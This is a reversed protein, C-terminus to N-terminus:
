ICHYFIRKEQLVWIIDNDSICMACQKKALNVMKVSELKSCEMDKDLRYVIGDQDLLLVNGKHICSGIFEKRHQYYYITLSDIREITTVKDYRTVHVNDGYNRFRGDYSEVHLSIDTRVGKVKDKAHLCDPIPFTWLPRGDNEINYLSAASIVRDKVSWSLNALYRLCFEPWDLGFEGWIYSKVIELLAEPLPEVMNNYM